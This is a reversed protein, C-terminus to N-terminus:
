RRVVRDPVRGGERLVTVPQLVAVYKRLEHGFKQVMWLNGPRTEDNVHMSCHYSWRYPSIAASLTPPREYITPHERLHDPSPPRVRQAFDRRENRFLRVGAM